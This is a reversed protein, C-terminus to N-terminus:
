RDPQCLRFRGQASRRGQGARAGGFAVLRGPGDAAIVAGAVRLEIRYCHVM